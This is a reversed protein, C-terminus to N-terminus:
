EGQGPPRRGIPCRPGMKGIYLALPPKFAGKVGLIPPDPVIQGWRRSRADPFGGINGSRVRAAMGLAVGDPRGRDSHTGPVKGSGHRDDNGCVSTRQETSTMRRNQQCPCSGRGVTRKLEFSRCRKQSDEINTVSVVHFLNTARERHHAMSVMASAADVRHHKVSTGGFIQVPPHDFKRRPGPPTADNMIDFGHISMVAIDHGTTRVSTLFDGRDPGRIGPPDFITLFPSKPLFGWIQGFIAFNAFIAFVPM